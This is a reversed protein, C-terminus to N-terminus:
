NRSAAAISSNRVRVVPSGDFFMMTAGASSGRKAIGAAAQAAFDPSATRKVRRFANGDAV